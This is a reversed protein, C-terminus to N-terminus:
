RLTRAAIVIYLVTYGPLGQSDITATGVQPLLEHTVTILAEATREIDGQSVTVGVRVLGPEDPALFSVM